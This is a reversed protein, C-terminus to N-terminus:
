LRAERAGLFGWAPQSLCWRPPAQRTVGEGPHSRGPASRLRGGRPLVRLFPAGGSVPVM